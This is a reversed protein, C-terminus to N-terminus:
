DAQKSGIVSLCRALYPSVAFAGSSFGALGCTSLVHKSYSTQTVLQAVYKLNTSIIQFSSAIHPLTKWIKQMVEQQPLSRKPFVTHM